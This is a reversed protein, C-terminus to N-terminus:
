SRAVLYFEVLVILVALLLADRLNLQRLSSLALLITAYGGLMVGRRTAVKSLGETQKKGPLWRATQRALAAGFASLSVLAVLFWLTAGLPGIAAPSTSIM